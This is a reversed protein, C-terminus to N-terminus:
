EEKDISASSKGKDLQYDSIVITVSWKVVDSVPHGKKDTVFSQFQMVTTGSEVARGNHHNKPGPTDAANIENGNTNSCQPCTKNPAITEKGKGHDSFSKGDDTTGSTTFTFTQQIQYDSADSGAPLTATLLTNWGFGDENTGPGINGADHFDL